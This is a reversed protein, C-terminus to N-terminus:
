ALEREVLAVKAEAMVQIAAAVVREPEIQRLCAVDYPCEEIRNFQCPSCGIVRSVIIANPGLPGWETRQHSGGFVCVTPVGLWRSLHSIGSNNGIVCAAHRVREVVANWPQGAANVVRRVPFARVIENVASRQGRTGVVVIRISAPLRELLLGIARAFGAAPWDRIANNSFPAVIIESM